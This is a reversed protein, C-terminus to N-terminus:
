ATRIRGSLAPFDEPLLAHDRCTPCTSQTNLWTKICHRHFCHGCDLKQVPYQQLEDHCIICPENCSEADDSKQWKNKTPGTVVRWPQKPQPSPAKPIVTSPYVNGSAQVWPTQAPAKDQMDLIYETVRSVVDDHKMGALTGGTKNRLEMIFNTLEVSKYHPFIEHLEEIIKDFATPKGPSQLHANGKKEKVTAVLGKGPLATAKPINVPPPKPDKNIDKSKAKKTERMPKLPSELSAQSASGSAPPPTSPNTTGPLKHTPTSPQLLTQFVSANSPAALSIGQIDSFRTGNEVLKIKEDFQSKIKESESKLYSPSLDAISKQAPSAISNAKLKIASHEVKAAMIRLKLLETQKRNELFNVEAAVARKKNEQLNEESRKIQKELKAKENEINFGSQVFTEIYTLYQQQKEEIERSYKDITENSAKIGNKLVRLKDHNEKKELQWKKTNSEMEHNFMELEKKTIKKTEVTEKIQKQLGSIEEKCRSQLHDYKETAEKLQDQLVLHEKEIRLIDGQQVEFPYYPETNVEQESLDRDVQVSVVGTLINKRLPVLQTRTIETEAEDKPNLNLTRANHIVPNLQEPQEAKNPLPMGGNCMITSNITITPQMAIGLGPIFPHGVSVVPLSNLGYMPVISNSILSGNFVPSQNHLLLFPNSPEHPLYETSIEVTESIISDFPNNSSPQFEKATPNLKAKGSAEELIVKHTHLGLLKGVMFFEASHLLFDKLGGAEEVLQHAEEPFDKFAGILIDDDLELPGREELIDYFYEYLTEQMTNDPQWPIRYGGPTPDYLNEFEEMDPRLYEPIIFPEYPDLLSLTNEETFIDDDPSRTSVAGSVKYLTKPQNQKKKKHKNKVKICKTPQEEDSKIRINICCSAEVPDKNVSYLVDNKTYPIDMEIFYKDLNRDLGAPLPVCRNEDLFWIFCRFIQIAAQNLKEATEVTISIYFNLLKGYTENWRDALLEFNLQELLSVSIAQFKKAARLGTDSIMKIFAPLELTLPYDELLYLFIRTKVRNNLSCLHALLVAMEDSSSRCTTEFSFGDLEEQSIVNWSILSNCLEKTNEVGTKFVEEKNLILTMMLDHPAVSYRNNCKNNQQNSSINEQQKQSKEDNTMSRNEEPTTKKVQTKSESRMKLKKNSCGKNKVTPRQPEKKKVSKDAFERKVLGTSDYIIINSIKGKCDPTFCSITLFDRDAKDSYNNAKLKKWCFVHFEVTCSLCCMVRIFGKFDPDTFYIQSKPLSLCQKYRCIADPKPPFKCEEIRSELLSQLKEPRSEELVIPTTPWTLIGPMMKLKVMTHSKVYQNLADSFRNQRFYVNGIGYFALCNFREKTFQSIIKKLQDEAKALEECQGTGFLANAYGYLLVVYDINSLYFRQLDSPTIIDLLKSFSGLANHCRSDALAECGDRVLTKVMEQLTSLDMQSYKCSVDQNEKPEPKTSSVRLKESEGVKGKSKGKKQNQGTVNDSISDKNQLAAGDNEKNPIDEKHSSSINKKEKPVLISPPQAIKKDRILKRTTCRRHKGDKMEEIKRKIKTHQKILDRIGEPSDKCLLQAKENSALALERDGMLFLVECFRYHGKAWKPKLVTAKKGDALANLYDGMRLYCLSRNGFLLHNDSSYEIAKSYLEAALIFNSKSFEENGHRKICESEVACRDCFHKRWMFFNYKQEAMSNIYHAYDIFLIQLPFCRFNEQEELKKCVQLEGTSKLWSMAESVHQYNLHVMEMSKAIKLLGEIFRREHAVKKVVDLLEELMEVFNLKNLCLGTSDPDVWAPGNHVTPTDAKLVPWLIYIKILDCHEHIVELPHSLWFTVPDVKEGVPTPPRQLPYEHGRFCTAIVHSSGNDIDPYGTGDMASPNRRRRVGSKLHSHGWRTARLVSGEAGGANNSQTGRLCAAGHGAEM